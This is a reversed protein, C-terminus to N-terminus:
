SVYFLTKHPGLRRSCALGEGEKRERGERCKRGRGERGDRIRGNSIPGKFAALPNPLASYGMVTQSLARAFISNPENKRVIHCKTVAIKCIKWLAIVHL